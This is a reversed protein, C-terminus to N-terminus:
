CHSHMWLLGYVIRVKSHRALFMHATTLLVEPQHLGITRLSTFVTERVADERDGLSELLAFSVDSLAFCQFCGGSDPFILKKSEM